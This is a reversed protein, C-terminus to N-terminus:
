LGFRSKYNWYTRQIEKPSLAKKYFNARSIQGSVGFGSNDMGIRLTTNTLNISSVIATHALGGNVYLYIRHTSGTMLESVYTLNYWTHLNYTTTTLTGSNGYGLLFVTNTTGLAMGTGAGNAGTSMVGQSAKKGFRVWTSMTKSQAGSVGTNGGSTVFGASSFIFVSEGKNSLFTVGSSNFSEESVVSNITNGSGSYSRVNAADIRAVNDELAQGVPGGNAGM